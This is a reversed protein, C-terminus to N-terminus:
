TTGDSPNERKAKSIYFTGLAKAVLRGDCEVSSELVAMNRTRSLLKAEATVTGSSIAAIYNVKMELTALMEDEHLHEFLAYGMSVDALTSIAGGHLTGYVNLLKEEIKLTCQAAEAEPFNLGVMNAFPSIKYPRRRKTVM